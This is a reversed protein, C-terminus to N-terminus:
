RVFRYDIDVPFGAGLLIQEIKIMVMVAIVGIM